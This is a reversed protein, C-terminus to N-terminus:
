IFLYEIRKLNFAGLANELRHIDDNEQTFYAVNMTDDGTHNADACLQHEQLWYGVRRAIAEGSDVWHRIQSLAQQLETKLLPFHTCALVITDVEPKAQIPAIIYQLADHTITEGRLKREALHVLDSSGVSVIECDVAFENILQQTYDRKVTGPTALLAITKTQTVAAAPKIAPVVGIVAKGIIDQSHRERIRPLAVTSATNCAVVIINAQTEEVLRQLVQDVRNILTAEDKTGYPFAGNDSAYFVPCHPYQQQIEQLISLGGVGSDFVLIRAMTNSTDSISISSDTSMTNKNTSLSLLECSLLSQSAIILACPIYFIHLM